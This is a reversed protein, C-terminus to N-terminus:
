RRRPAPRNLLNGAHAAGRLRRHRAHAAQGPPIGPALGARLGTAAGGQVDNMTGGHNRSLNAAVTSKGQWPGACDGRCLNLMNLLRIVDRWNAGSNQHWSQEARLSLKRLFANTISMRNPKPAAPPAAPSCALVSM